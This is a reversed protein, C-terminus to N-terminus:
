ILKKGSFPKTEDEVYYISETFYEKKGDNEDQTCNVTECERSTLTTYLGEM